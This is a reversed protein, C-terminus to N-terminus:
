EENNVGASTPGLGRERSCSRKGTQIPTLSHTPLSESLASGAMLPDSKPGGRKRERQALEGNTAKRSLQRIRIVAGNLYARICWFFKQASRFNM